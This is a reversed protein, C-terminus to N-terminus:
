FRSAFESDFASYTQVVDRKIQALHPYFLDILGDVAKQMQEMSDNFERIKQKEDHHMDRRMAQRCFRVLSNLSPVDKEDFSETTSESSEAIRNKFKNVATVSCKGDEVMDSMVNLCSDYAEQAQNGQELRYRYFEDMLGVIVHENLQREAEESIPKAEEPKEENEASMLTLSTQSSKM